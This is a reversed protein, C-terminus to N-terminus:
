LNTQSDGNKLLRDVNNLDWELGNDSTRIVDEDAFFNVEIRPPQYHNKERM